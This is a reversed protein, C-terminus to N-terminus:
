KSPGIFLNIVFVVICFAIVCFFVVWMDGVIPMSVLFEMIPIAITAAVLLFFGLGLMLIAKMTKDKMQFTASRRNESTKKLPPFDQCIPPPNPPHCGWSPDLNRGGRHRM